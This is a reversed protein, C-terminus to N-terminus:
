EGFKRRAEFVYACERGPAKMEAEMLEVERKSVGLAGKAIKSWNFKVLNEALEIVPIVYVEIFSNGAKLNHVRMAESYQHLMFELDDKIENESQRKGALNKIFRRFHWQKGHMEKRFALIDEWASGPGPVPFQDLAVRLIMERSVAEGEVARTPVRCCIPAIQIDANQKEFLASFLRVWADSLNEGVNAAHQRDYPTVAFRRGHLKEEIVADAIREPATVIDSYKPDWAHATGARIRAFCTEEDILTVFGHEELWRFEAKARKLDKATSKHLMDDFQQLGRLKLLSIKDFFLSYKKLNDANPVRSRDIFGELRLV